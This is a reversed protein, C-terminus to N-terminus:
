SQIDIKGYDWYSGRSLKKYGSHGTQCLLIMVIRYGLVISNGCGRKAGLHKTHLYNCKETIINLDRNEILIIDLM